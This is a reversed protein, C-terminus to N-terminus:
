GTIPGLIYTSAAMVDVRWGLSTHWFNESHSEGNPDTDLVSTSAQAQSPIFM